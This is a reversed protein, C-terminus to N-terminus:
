IEVMEMGKKTYIYASKFNLTITKIKQDALYDIVKQPIPSGFEKKLYALSIHPTFKKDEVKKFVPFQETIKLLEKHLSFLRRSSVEVMILKRRKPDPNLQWNAFFKGTKCKLPLYKQYVLRLRPIIKEIEECPTRDRYELYRCSIHPPNKDFASDCYENLPGTLSKLFKLEMKTIGFIGTGYFGMAPNPIEYDHSPKKTM